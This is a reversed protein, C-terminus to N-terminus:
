FCMAGVGHSGKLANFSLHHELESGAHMSSGVTGLPQHELHSDDTENVQLLLSHKNPCKHTLSFKDDCYYCLGKDRRLQM